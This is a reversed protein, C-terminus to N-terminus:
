PKVPSPILGLNIRVIAKLRKWSLLPGRSILRIVNYYAHIDPDKIVNHDTTLSQEYGDPMTRNFHGIRAYYGPLRALLPDALATTDVSFLNPGLHISYAGLSGYSIWPAMYETFKWAKPVYLFLHQNNFFHPLTNHKNYFAREDGIGKYIDYREELMQNGLIWSANLAGGGLLIFFAPWFLIICILTKFREFYLRQYNLPASILFICSVLVSGSFFRGQMFDGGIRTVYLIYFLMGLAFFRSLNSAYLMYLFAIIIIFFTIKDTQYTFYLYNLGGQFLDWWPINHMLKAYATNPFPFGYYFLSFLTWLIVPVAGITIARVLIRPEDDYILFRLSFFLLAPVAMLINDPRTLYLAATLLYLHSLYSGEREKDEKFAYYIFLLLLLHSLPNELGSTSFDIYARSLFLATAGCIIHFIKKTFCTLFLWFTLLSIIFPLIFLPALFTSSFVKISLFSLGSLLAFWLPHTYAQVREGVNFVPGYGNLLNLVTRMTILSDDCLWATHWLVFFYMFLLFGCFTYRIVTNLKQDKLSQLFFM